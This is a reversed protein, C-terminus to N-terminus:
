GKLWEEVKKEAVKAAKAIPAIALKRGIPLWIFPGIILTGILLAITWDPVTVALPRVTPVQAQGYTQQPVDVVQYRSM